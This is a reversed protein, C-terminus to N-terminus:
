RIRDDRGELVSLYVEITKRASDRWTYKEVRRAGRSILAKKLEKDLLVREIKEAIDRPDNPDFYLAGDGLVEKLAPIHSAVVPTGLSAAELAVFGFGESFSPLVFASASRFFVSLEDEPIFGPYIINQSLGLSSANGRVEPYHPDERGGVVLLLNDGFRKKLFSFAKLLGVLNKHNRWVGVYFIFPRTIGYKALVAERTPGSESFPKIGEHIVAIKESKVNHFRLIENKTAHSVAIIRSAKKVAADFVLGFGLRRVFSNMKHGPFFRPTLDHITVVTKGFYLIPSNFHPVHLLDVRERLLYFPLHLQERWSYWPSAVRVKRVNVPPNYRSYEPELMFMVYRNETDLRFLHETLCAIYTGIGTQGAGYMRADIGITYRRKSMSTSGTTFNEFLGIAGNRCLRM